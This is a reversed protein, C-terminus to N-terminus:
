GVEQVKLVKDLYSLMDDLEKETDFPILREKESVQIKLYWKHTHLSLTGKSYEGITCIKIRSLGIRIFMIKYYLHIFM